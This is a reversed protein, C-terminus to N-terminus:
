TGYRNRYEEYTHTSLYKLNVFKTEDVDINNIETINVFYDYIAHTIATYVRSWHSLNLKLIMNYMDNGKLEIKPKNSNLCTIHFTKNSM